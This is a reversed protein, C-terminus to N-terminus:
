QKPILLVGVLGGILFFSGGSLFLLFVDRAEDSTLKRDENVYYIPEGGIIPSAFFALTFATFLFGVLLWRWAVWRALPAMQRPPREFLSFDSFIRM